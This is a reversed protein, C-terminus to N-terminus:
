SERNLFKAPAPDDTSSSGRVVEEAEHSEPSKTSRKELKM